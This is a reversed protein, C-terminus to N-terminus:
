RRQFSDIEYTSIDLGTVRAGKALLFETTQGSGCMAELVDLGRLHIGAFMPENIFRERYQRSCADGYHSEYESGIRDYHLRQLQEVTVSQVIPYNM